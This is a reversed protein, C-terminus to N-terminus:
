RLSCRRVELFAPRSSEGKIASEFAGINKLACHLAHAPAVLSTVQCSGPSQLDNSSGSVALAQRGLRDVASRRGARGRHGSQRGPGRRCGRCDAVTLRDHGLLDSIFGEIEEEAFGLRPYRLMRELEALLEPSIALRLEGTRCREYLEHEPGRWGVASVLVNTDFVV